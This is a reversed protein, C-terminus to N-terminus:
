MVASTPPMTVFLALDMAEIKPPLFFYNRASGSFGEDVHHASDLAAATGRRSSQRDV